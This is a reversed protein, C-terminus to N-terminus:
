RRPNSSSLRSRLASVSDPPLRLVDPQGRCIPEPRVPTIQARRGADAQVLAVVVPQDARELMQAVNAVAHQHDLVVLVHDAGGVVDDVHPRTGANM